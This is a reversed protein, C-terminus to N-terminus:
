PQPPQPAFSIRRLENIRGAELRGEVLEYGLLAFMRGRIFLPRANGYWDVCSARCQDDTARESQAALDGVRSLKLGENRLFVIAASSEFLYRYGPRWPVSIPLGLTGSDDGDPKYFFGHSRSEGQSAGEYIFHSVIQPSAGLRVSSFHLNEEDAGVIVAGAGIQEIRDIDHSLNLRQTNGRLWNIVFVENQTKKEYYGWSGTGYILFDHVFRNQFYGDREPKPLSRYSEAPVLQSGDSFSNLPIRMLAVDGSSVEAAWM